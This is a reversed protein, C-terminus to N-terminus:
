LSYKFFICLSIAINVCCCVQLSCYNFLFIYWVEDYFKSSVAKETSLEKQTEKLTLAKLRMEKEVELVKSSYKGALEKQTVLQSSIKQLEDSHDVILKELDVATNSLHQEVALRCTLWLILTFSTYM